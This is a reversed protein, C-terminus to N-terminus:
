LTPVADKLARAHRRAPNRRRPGDLSREPWTRLTELVGDWFRVRAEISQRAASMALRRRHPDGHIASELISEAAPGHSDGDLEIHRRLYYVFTPAQRDDLGWSELLNSFMGPIVNERGYLFSAMVELPEAHIAMKLTHGTFERVFEAVGAKAFAKSVDSGNGLVRLFNEFQTTSAGVERMARLYLELHSAAEGSPGVDSEEGLVIQNILQTAHAEARPVWPVEVCSLERQLRKLLSMFDWVAFVHAEMFTRLCSISRIANFVPHCIMQQRIPDLEAASFPEPSTPTALASSQM